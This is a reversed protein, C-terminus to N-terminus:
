SRTLVPQPWKGPKLWYKALVGGFFVAVWLSALTDSFYHSGGMMRGMSVFMWWVVALIIFIARQRRPFGRSLFFLTILLAANAAHGSAFSKYMKAQSSNIMYWEQYKASGGFQEIQMPRPRGMVNKFVGNVTLAPILLHMLVVFLLIRVSGDSRHVYGLATIGLLSVISLLVAGKTFEPAKALIVGGMQPISLFVSIAVLVLLPILYIRAGPKRALSFVLFLYAAILLMNAPIPGWNKVLESITPNFNFHGVQSVSPGTYFSRAISLDWGFFATLFMLAAIIILSLGWAEEPKLNKVRTKLANITKKM